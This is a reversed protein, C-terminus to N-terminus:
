KRAAHQAVFTAILAAVERPSDLHVHHGGEVAVPVPSKLRLLRERLQAEDLTFGHTGHILQVPCEIAELLALVQAEDLKMGFMRRHAPDFRFTVGGDVPRTNFATLQRAAAESLDSDNERLRAAAEEVSAYVRSRLPKGLQELFMRVRDVAQTADGGTPGLSELATLSRVRGPRGAAYMLAVSGGLSHGVLHVEEVGLAALTHEVDALYDTFQYLGGGALHGSEGHGRFDLAVTRLSSPLAQAVWDFSHCHELWGHLFLVTAAGGPNRELM